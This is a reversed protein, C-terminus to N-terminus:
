MTVLISPSGHWYYKISWRNGMCMYCLFMMVYGPNSKQVLKTLYISFLRCSFSGRASSSSFLPLCAHYHKLINPLNSLPTFHLQCFAYFYGM